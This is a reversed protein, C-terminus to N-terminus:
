IHRSRQGVKGPITKLFANDPDDLKKRLEAQSATYVNFGQKLWMEAVIAPIEAIVRGKQGHTRRWGGVQSAQMAKNHDIIGSVDQTRKVVVQGNRAQIVTSVSSTTDIM